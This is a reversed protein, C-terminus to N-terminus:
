ESFDFANWILMFGCLKDGLKCHHSFAMSLPFTSFKQCIGGHPFHRIMQAIPSSLILPFCILFSRFVAQNHWCVCHWFSIQGHLVEQVFLFFLLSKKRHAMQPNMGDGPLAAALQHAPPQLAWLCCKGLALLRGRCPAAAPSCCFVRRLQPGVM